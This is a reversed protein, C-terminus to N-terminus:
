SFRSMLVGLEKVILISLVGFLESRPHYVVKTFLQLIALIDLFIWLIAVMPGVNSWFTHLKFQITWDHGGDVGRFRILRGPGISLGLFEHLLSVAPWISSLSLLLCSVTHEMSNAGQVSTGVLVVSRCEGGSRHVFKLIPPAWDAQFFLPWIEPRKDQFLGFYYLSLGM